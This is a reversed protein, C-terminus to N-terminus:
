VASVKEGHIGFDAYDGGRGGGDDNGDDDDVAGFGPMDMLESQQILLKRLQAIRTDRHHVEEELQLVDTNRQQVESQWEHLAKKGSNCSRSWARSSATKTLWPRKSGLM